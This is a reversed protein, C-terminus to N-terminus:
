CNSAARSHALRTTHQLQGTILVGAWLPLGFLIKFAIASGIVEQIDSGIIALETMIWLLKAMVPSYNERCVQALHKGTVVGLRAALIQLVLGLVTSWFLVWILQYGTYAGAQLDSELNGPDLYAISMLWGPGTYAWLLRWSFRTEVGDEAALEPISVEGAGSVSGSPGDPSAGPQGDTGDALDTDLLADSSSRVGPRSSDSDYFTAGRSSSVSRASRVDDSSNLM